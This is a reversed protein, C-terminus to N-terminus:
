ALSKLFADYAARDMLDDREEGSSRIKAFWGDGEAAENVLEPREDLAGNVEAVEGAVPSYVDSAAKVSEVVAFADGKALTRGVEPLEVFTIDGLQEQAHETIGVVVLEGDEELWEHDKTFRKM